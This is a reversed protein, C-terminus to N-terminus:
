TLLDLLTKDEPDDGALASADGELRTTPNEEVRKRIEPPVDPQRDRDRQKREAQRIKDLVHRCLDPLEWDIEGLRGTRRDHSNRYAAESLANKALVVDQM